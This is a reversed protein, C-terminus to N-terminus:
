RLTAPHHLSPLPSSLSPALLLSWPMKQVDSGDESIILHQLGRSEELEVKPSTSRETLHIWLEKTAYLGFADSARRRTYREVELHHFGMQNSYEDPGQDRYSAVESHLARQAPERWRRCVLSAACLAELRRFETTPPRTAEPSYNM